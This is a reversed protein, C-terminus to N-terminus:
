SRRTRRPVGRPAPTQPSTTATSTTSSAWSPERARIRSLTVPLCAFITTSRRRTYFTTPVVPSYTIAGVYFPLGRFRNTTFSEGFYALDELVQMVDAVVGLFAMDAWGRDGSERAEHLHDVADTIAVRRAPITQDLVSRLYARTPLAHAGPDPWGTM